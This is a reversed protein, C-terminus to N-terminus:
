SPVDYSFHHVEDETGYMQQIGMPGVNERKTVINGVQVGKTFLRELIENGVNKTTLDIYNKESKVYRVDLYRNEVLERSFHYKVDIHKTCMGM